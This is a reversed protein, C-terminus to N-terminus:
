FELRLGLQLERPNTALSTITGFGSSSTVDSAPVGLNPKNLFNFAEARFQIRLLEAIPFTKFL